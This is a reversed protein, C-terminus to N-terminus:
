FDISLRLDLILFLKVFLTWFREVSSVVIVINGVLRRLIFRRYFFRSSPSSFGVFGVCFELAWLPSPSAFSWLGLPQSFVVDVSVCWPPVFFKM